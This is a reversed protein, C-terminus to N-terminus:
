RRDEDDESDDKIQPLIKLGPDNTIIRMIDVIKGRNVNQDIIFTHKIGLIEESHVLYYLDPSRLPLIQIVMFKYIGRNTNIRPEMRKLLRNISDKITAFIFVERTPELYKIGLKGLYSCEAMAMNRERNMEPRLSRVEPRVAPNSRNTPWSRCKVSPEHDIYNDLWTEILSNIFINSGQGVLTDFIEYDEEDTLPMLKNYNFHSSMIGNESTITSLRKVIMEDDVFYKLSGFTTRGHIKGNKVKFKGWLLETSEAQFYFDVSGVFQEDIMNGILSCDYNGLLLDPFQHIIMDDLDLYELFVASPEIIKPIINIIEKFLRCVDVLPLRDDIPIYELIKMWLEVPVDDWQAEPVFIPQAM